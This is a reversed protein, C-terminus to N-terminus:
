SDVLSSQSASLNPDGSEIAKVLALDDEKM